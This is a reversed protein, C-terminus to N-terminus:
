AFNLDEIQKLVTDVLRDYVEDTLNGSDKSNYGFNVASYVLDKLFARNVAKPKLFDSNLCEEVTWRNNPNRELCKRMLTVSSQPVLSGDIGQKPFQIEVMPNMIAMIRQQGSFAGYPPRGYIMQYIICGCSWIDSPQGVKWFTSSKNMSAGGSAEILAEPAMYNPTGIQSQRYINATHDPVANAIGFDIIKLTGGVFLFNAPKLDSHVIGARHVAQVCRLIETAHFRVFNIDLVKGSALKNSLVHALDLDGCEMVLYISGESVAHDLLTVVRSDHRLKRLLDIEGKFGKVCADDFQDFSVKKIAYVKKDAFSRVKYVKSSGGRGLLELKEYQTSNVYILKRRNFDENLAPPEYQRKRQTTSSSPVPTITASSYVPKQEVQAPLPSHPKRPKRFDTPKDSNIYQSTKEHLPVRGNSDPAPPLQPVKSHNNLVPIRNNSNLGLESFHPTRNKLRELSKFFESNGSVAPKSSSSETRINRDSVSRYSRDENPLRLIQVDAIYDSVKPFDLPEPNPLPRSDLGASKHSHPHEAGITNKYVDDNSSDNSFKIQELEVDCARKPPGLSKFRRSLRSRKVRKVAASHPTSGGSAASATTSSADIFTSSGKKSGVSSTDLRLHSDKTDLIQDSSYAPTHNVANRPSVSQVAMSNPNPNTLNSNSISSNISPHSLSSFDSANSTSTVNSTNAGTSSSSGEPPLVHSKSAPSSNLLSNGSVDQFHVSLKPKLSLRVAEGSQNRLLDGLLAIGYASLAPPAFTNDEEHPHIQNYAPSRDQPAHEPTPLPGGDRIDM